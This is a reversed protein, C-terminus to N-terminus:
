PPERANPTRLILAILHLRGVKCAPCMLFDSGFLTTLIEDRTVQIDSDGPDKAQAPHPGDDPSTAAGSALRQAAPLRRHVNAGAYLGYHRIKTFGKPLVHQLFRGIFELPSLEAQQGDKTAFTIRTDTVAILRQNSIAVRHTYRGLYKFLHESGPLPRKAYGHWRMRWLRDLLKDFADPTSPLGALARPEHEDLAALFKGRFVKALAAVPFLFNRGRPPTIWRQEDKSLGGATVVCHVHPHYGLDRRWTHLVISLGLQAGLWRPDRGFAMLTQSAARFLLAYALRPNAKAFPRLLGPLTFVIHFHAVPVIRDLRLAVWQAQRVAQCKPCHRDRCSNYSPREFECNSCAEMHGGLAATRCLSLCRMVKKQAATLALATRAEHAHRRMIAGIDLTDTRATAAGKDPHAHLM